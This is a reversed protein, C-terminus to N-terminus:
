RAAEDAVLRDRGSGKAVYLAADARRLLGEIGDRGTCAVGVSATVALDTGDPLRVPGSSISARLREGLIRAGPLATMPAMVLFEEGGWRGVVDEARVATRLRGAVVRIVHDGADHGYTDNVRKFHDIDFILVTLRGGHRSVMSGLEGLRGELYRRNHLGTLADTRSLVELQMTRAQVEAELRKRETIDEVVGIVHGNWPRDPAPVPPQPVTMTVTCWVVDGDPRLLRHEAQYRERRGDVLEPFRRDFAMVDGPHLFDRFPLPV